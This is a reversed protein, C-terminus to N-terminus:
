DDDDEVEAAADELVAGSCAGGETCAAGFRRKEKASAGAAGDAVPRLAEDDAEAAADVVAVGSCVGYWLCSARLGAVVAAAAVTGILSVLVLGKALPAFRQKMFAEKCANNEEEDTQAANRRM